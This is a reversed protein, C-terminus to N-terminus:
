APSRSAGLWDALELLDRLEVTPAAEGLPVEAKRNIWAVPIGCAAAPEVDHFYSQAVHLWSRSSVLERAREFHAPAPKYSRVQQATVFLDFEVDIRRLTGALLDDDVNSLIGLIVGGGKLRRLAPNTDPFPPWRGVSAPLFDAHRPELPWGLLRAARLAVIELVERYSRYGEAQVVPEIEAHAALVRHPDLEVGDRAAARLFAEAIGREWDILTGYCDFTLVDYSM